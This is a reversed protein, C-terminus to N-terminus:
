GASRSEADGRPAGYFGTEVDSIEGLFSDLRQRASGIVTEARVQTTVDRILAATGVMEGVAEGLPWLEASLSTGWPSRAVVTEFAPTEAIQEAFRPWEVMADSLSQGLSGREPVRLLRQAAPNLDVIRGSPDIVLLGEPMQEVLVDRAVPVLDLLHYRMLTFALIAASVGVTMGPDFWYAADPIVVYYIFGVWPILVAVSVLIAQARYLMKSRVAFDLFIVTAAATVVLCYVTVLWFIPGHEYILIGPHQPHPTVSTWILRHNENTAAAFSAALPLVLFQAVQSASMKSVRGTYELAFFLLFVPALSAGLYSLKSFIIRVDIGIDAWAIATTLTWEASAALLLLLWAAGPANRRGWAFVFAAVPILVSALYILSYVSVLSNM